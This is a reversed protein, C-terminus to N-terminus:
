GSMRWSPSRLIDPYHKLSQRANTLARNMSNEFIEPRKIIATSMYGLRPHGQRLSQVSFSDHLYFLNSLSHVRNMLPVYALHILDLRKAIERTQQFGTVFILAILITIVGFSALVKRRLSIQM